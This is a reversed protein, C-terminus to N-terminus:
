PTLSAASTPTCTGLAQRLQRIKHPAIDGQRDGDCVAGRVAVIDPRITHVSLLHEQRLSGALVLALGAQHVQKRREVLEAVTHHAFLPGRSKDFTDILLLRCGVSEAASLTEEWSPSGATRHDAYYVAVREVGKPVEAMLTQWARPWDPQGACGSLGVKVASVEPPLRPPVDLQHLEGLAISVPMQRHWAHAVEQWVHPEAAGLSGRSPEKLDLRDAGNEAALRAEAPNRVSVLLQM